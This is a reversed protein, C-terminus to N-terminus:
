RRRRGGRGRGRGGATRLSNRRWIDEIERLVATNREPEREPEEREPEPEREPEREAHEMAERAAVMRHYPSSELLREQIRDRVLYAQVLRRASSATVAERERELEEEARADDDRIPTPEPTAPRQQQPQQQQPAPVERHRQAYCSEVHAAWEPFAPGSWNCGAVPCAKVARRCPQYRGHDYIHWRDVFRDGCAACSADELPQVEDLVDILDVRVKYASEERFIGSNDFVKQCVLHKTVGRRLAPEVDLEVWKRVCAECALKCASGCGCADGCHLQDLLEVPIKIQGLCFPCQTDRLQEVHCTKTAAIAADSTAVLVKKLNDPSLLRTTGGLALCFTTIMDTTSAM